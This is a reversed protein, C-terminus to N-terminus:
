SGGNITGCISGYAAILRDSDWANTFPFWRILAISYSKTADRMAAAQIAHEVLATGIGCRQHRRDVAVDEIHGVSGGGHIFKREILLTVAGVVRGASEAVFTRVNAPMGNLISRATQPTLDVDTLAALADLFGRDFDESRLDRIHITSKEQTRDAM